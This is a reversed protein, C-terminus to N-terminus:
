RPRPPTPAPCSRGGPSSRTRRRGTLPAAPSGAGESPSAARGRGGLLACSCLSPQAWGLAPLPGQASGVLTRSCGDWGQLGGGRGAARSRFGGEQPACSSRRSRSLDRGGQGRRPGKALEEGPGCEGYKGDRRNPGTPEVSRGRRAWRSGSGLQGAVDWRCLRGRVAGTGSRHTATGGLGGPVHAWAQAGEVTGGKGSDM